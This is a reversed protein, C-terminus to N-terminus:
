DLLELNHIVCELFNNSAVGITQGTLYATGPIVCNTEVLGQDSRRLGFKQRRRTKTYTTQNREPIALGIM